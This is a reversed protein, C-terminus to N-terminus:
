EAAPLAKNKSWRGLIDAWNRTIWKDGDHYYMLNSTIVYSM